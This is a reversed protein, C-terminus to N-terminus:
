LENKHYNGIQIIDKSKPIKNCYYKYFTGHGILYVPYMMKEQDLQLILILQNSVTDYCTSLIQNTM